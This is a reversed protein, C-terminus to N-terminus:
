DWGEWLVEVAWLIQSALNIEAQSKQHGNQLQICRRASWSWSSRNKWARSKFRRNDDDDSFVGIKHSESSVQHLLGAVAKWWSELTSGHIESDMDWGEPRMGFLFMSSAVVSHHFSRMSARIWSLRDISARDKYRSNVSSCTSLYDVALCKEDAMILTSTNQYKYSQVGNWGLAEHNAARCKWSNCDQNTLHNVIKLRLWLELHQMVLGLVHHFALKPGFISATKNFADVAVLSNLVNSIAKCRRWTFINPAIDM